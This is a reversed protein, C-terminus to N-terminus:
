EILIVSGTKMDHINPLRKSMYKYILEGTCHCTYYKKVQKNTLRDILTDLFQLDSELNLDIHNLHFGAIVYNITTNLWREASNIINLIGRHACGSFLCENGNEYVILNLEHLFQDHIQNDDILTYLTDNGPPMLDRGEITSFVYMFDGIHKNGEVFQFRSNDMLNKDLGIYRYSMDALQKTQQDFAHSSIYIKANQNIELFHKLGGGHDYHGHSIFAIDIKELDIGLKIANHIFDDNQGTDFLIKSHNTEIYLSLGHHCALNPNLTRNELLSVIKM